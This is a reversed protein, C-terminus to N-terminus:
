LLSAYGTSNTEKIRLINFELIKDQSGLLKTKLNYFTPIATVLIPHPPVNAKAIVFM